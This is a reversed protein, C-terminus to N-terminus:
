IFYIRGGFPRLIEHYWGKQGFAWELSSLPKVGGTRLPLYPPNSPELQPNEGDGREAQKIGEVIGRQFARFTYM